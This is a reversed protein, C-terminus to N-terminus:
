YEAAYGGTEEYDSRNLNFDYIRKKPTEAQDVGGARTKTYDKLEPIADYMVQLAADITENEEARRANEKEYYNKKHECEAQKAQLAAVANDYATHTKQEYAEAQELDAILKDEYSQKRELEAKLNANESETNDQWDAFDYAAKIEAEELDDLSKHLHDELEDILQYINSETNSTFGPRQSVVSSTDVNKMADRDNDRHESASDASYSVSYFDDGYKQKMQSFANSRVSLIKVREILEAYDGEGTAFYSALDARLVELIALAEKHQRLSQVFKANEECRQASLEDLMQENRLLRDSLDIIADQTTKLEDKVFQLHNKAHTWEEDASAVNAELVAITSACEAEEDVNRADAQRQEEENSERLNHLLDVVEEM